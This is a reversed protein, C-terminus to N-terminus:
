ERRGMAALRERFFQATQRAAEDWTYGTGYQAIRHHDWHKELAAELRQALANNDNVPVLLGREPENVLICNDGVPTTIVPLGCALAELIANCCGEDFTPLAFVDAARLWAAVREPPQPGTLIVLDSLGLDSVMKRLLEPYHPEHAGGGILALKVRSVSKQLRPLAELLLHQGKGYVLMGVCVILRDDAAIGVQRRAEEQSGAHFLARDVANPIVKLKEPPIGREQALESLSQSVCIIGSCQELAWLLQPGRGRYGLVPRELGRMTIFVPLGLERAAMVCGVGEPYGFHADVLSLPETAGLKQLVPLLARKVWYGDLRKLVGPIYFMPARITLPCDDRAQSGNLCARPRLIPFWPQLHLVRLDELQALASLRRQVFLGRQPSGPAPYETSVSAIRM